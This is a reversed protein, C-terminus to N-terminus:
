IKTLFKRDLFVVLKPGDEDGVVRKTKKLAPLFMWQDSSKGKKLYDVQMFGLGKESVPKKILSLSKKDVKKNKIEISISKFEKIRPPSSCKKKSSTKTKVISFQCSMLLNSIYSTKGESRNFVKKMIETPSLEHSPSEKGFSIPSFLLLYAKFCVFTRNRLAIIKM